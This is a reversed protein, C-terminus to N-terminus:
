EERGPSVLTRLFARVQCAAHPDVFLGADPDDAAFGFRGLYDHWEVSGVIRGSETDRVMWWRPRGSRMEFVLDTM